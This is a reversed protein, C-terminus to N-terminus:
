RNSTAAAQAAQAAQIAGSLSAPNLAQGGANQAANRLASLDAGSVQASGGGPANALADNAAAQVQSAAAQAQQEAAKKLVNADRSKLTKGAAAALEGAAEMTLQAVCATKCMDKAANMGLCQVKCTANYMSPCDEWYPGPALCVEGLLTDHCVDSRVPYFPLWGLPHPGGCANLDRRERRKMAEGYCKGVCMDYIPNCAADCQSAIGATIVSSQPVPTNANPRVVVPSGGLALSVLIVSIM